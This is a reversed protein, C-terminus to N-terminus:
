VQGIPFDFKRLLFAFSTLSIKTGFHLSDFVSIKAWFLGQSFHCFGIQCKFFCCNSVMIEWQIQPLTSQKVVQRQKEVQCALKTMNIGITTKQEIRNQKTIQKFFSHSIPKVIDGQDRAYKPKRHM